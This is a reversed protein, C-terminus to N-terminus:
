IVDENRKDDIWMLLNEKTKSRYNDNKKLIREEFETIVKLREKPNDWEEAFDKEISIVRKIDDIDEIEGYYFHELDTLVLKGENYKYNQTSKFFRIVDKVSMNELYSQIECLSDMAIDNSYIGYDWAGM